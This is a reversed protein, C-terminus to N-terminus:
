YPCGVKMPRHQQGLKYTLTFGTFSYSDNYDPAGKHSVEDLYDTTTLRFGFEFAGSLRSNLQYKIGIGAFGALALKAYEQDDDAHWHAGDSPARFIGGYRFMLPDPSFYMGGVGAFLYPALPTFFAHRPFPLINFEGQLSVEYFSTEFAYYTAPYNDNELINTFREKTNRDSGRLMGWYANLRTSIRTNHNVRLMLGGAPYVKHYLNDRNLDGNYAVMGGMIGVEFDHAKVGVTTLMLFSLLVGRFSINLIQM